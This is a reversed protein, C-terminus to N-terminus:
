YPFKALTQDENPANNANRLAFTFPRLSASRQDVSEMERKKFNSWECYNTFLTNIASWSWQTGPMFLIFYWKWNSKARIVYIKRVVVSSLLSYALILLRSETTKDVSARKATVCNYIASLNFNMYDESYHLDYAAGWRVSHPSSPLGHCVLKVEKLKAHDSPRRTESLITSSKRSKDCWLVSRLINKRWPSTSRQRM